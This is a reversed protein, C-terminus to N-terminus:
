MPIEKAAWRAARVDPSATKGGRRITDMLQSLNHIDEPSMTLLMESLQACLKFATAPAGKPPLDFRRSVNYAQWLAVEDAAGLDLLSIIKQVLSEDKPLKTGCELASIYAQRYGLRTAFEGQDLQFRNRLTRLAISFPTM